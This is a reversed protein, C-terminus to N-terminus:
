ICTHFRMSIKVERSKNKSRLPKKVKKKNSKLCYKDDTHTVVLQEIPHLVLQDPYKAMDRTQSSCQRSECGFEVGHFFLINISWRRNWRM